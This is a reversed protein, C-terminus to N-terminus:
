MLPHDAAFALLIAVDLLVNITFWTAIREVILPRVLDTWQSKVWFEDRGTADAGNKLEKRISDIQIVYRNWSETASLGAVIILLAILTAISM